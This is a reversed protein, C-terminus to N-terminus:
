TSCRIRSNSVSDSPRSQEPFAKEPRGRRVPETTRSLFGLDHTGSAQKARPRGHATLNGPMAGLSLRALKIRTRASLESDAILAQIFNRSEGMSPHDKGQVFLEHSSVITPGYTWGAFITGEM